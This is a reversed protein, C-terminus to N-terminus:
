AVPRPAFTFAIERPRIRRGLRYGCPQSLLPMFHKRYVSLRTPHVIVVNDVLRKGLVPYQHRIVLIEPLFYIPFLAWVFADNQQSKLIFPRNHLYFGEFPQQFTVRVSKSVLKHDNGLAPNPKSTCLMM